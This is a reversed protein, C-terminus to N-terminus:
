MGGIVPLYLRSLGDTQRRKQSGRSSQHRPAWVPARTQRTAAAQGAGLCAHDSDIREGSLGGACGGARRRGMRTPRGPSPWTPEATGAARVDGMRGCSCRPDGGGEDAIGGSEGPLVDGHRRGRPQGAGVTTTSAGATELGRASDEPWRSAARHGGVSQQRMPASRHGRQWRGAASSALTMAPTREQMRMTTRTPPEDMVAMTFPVVFKMKDWISSPASRGREGVRLSATQSLGVEFSTPDIRDSFQRDEDATRRTAPRATRM